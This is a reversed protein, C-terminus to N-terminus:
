VNLAGFNATAHKENQKNVRQIEDLDKEQVKIKKSKSNTATNPSKELMLKDLDEEDIHIESAGRVSKNPSMNPNM